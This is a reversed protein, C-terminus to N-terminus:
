HKAVLWTPVACADILRLTSVAGVCKMEPINCADKSTGKYWRVSGLTENLGLLPTIPHSVTTYRLQTSDEAKLTETLEVGVHTKDCQVTCVSRASYYYYDARADSCFTWSIGLYRSMHTTQVQISGFHLVRAIKRSGPDCCVIRTPKPMCTM